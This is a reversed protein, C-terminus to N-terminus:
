HVGVAQPLDLLASRLDENILPPELPNHQQIVIGAESVLLPYSDRHATNSCAKSITGVYNFYQRSLKSYYRLVIVM